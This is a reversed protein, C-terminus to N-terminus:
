EENIREVGNTTRIRKQHTKPFSEFNRIDSQFWDITNISKLYWKSELDEILMDMKSKDLFAEKLKDAYEKREKKPTNKLVARIFHVQCMQWSAGVFSKQVANQIGEHGDSIVLRV